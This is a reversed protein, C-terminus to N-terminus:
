ARRPRLRRMNNAVVETDDSVSSKQISQLSRKSKAFNTGGCSVKINKSNRMRENVGSKKKVNYDGSDDLVEDLSSSSSISRCSILCLSKRDLLAEPKSLESLMKDHDKWNGPRFNPMDKEESTTNDIAEWREDELRVLEIDGNDHVIKFNSNQSDYSDVTGSSYCLDIPSWLRIRKGVLAEGSGGREVCDASSQIPETITRGKIPIDAEKALIEKHPNSLKISVSACSSLQERELNFNCNENTLNAPGSVSKECLLETSASTASLMKKHKVKSDVKMTELKQNEKDSDCVGVKQRLQKSQKSDARRELPLDNLTKKKTELCTYNKQSIGCHKADCSAPQAIFSENAKLIRKVFGENIFSESTHSEERNRADQCVKYHSSPLLVLRPADLSLELQESLAKVLFLGIKSLIHLKPTMDPNIADEAKQIARFIGLLFSVTNSFYHGNIKLIDLNLLERLIVILPSCFEAYVDEEKCNELPFKPDYALVHILFVMIYAPHNTIADKKQELTNHHTLFKRSSEELFESLYRTSDTRIDGLCDTSTLAFACAYKNLLAHEKLLKHIKCIFSRRVACSSDRATFIISHFHKPSIHSDWRTALRLVSKAAAIRLYAKDYESIIIANYIGQELIIDFLIDFLGNIQHQLHTVQRPLFSRVLAKLGYIKIKCSFSPVSDEGSFTQGSPSPDAAFMELSCLIDEVIFRMVKQHYLKYASPSYQSIHSISQLLAPINGSDDLANVLKKLLVSFTNDDSSHGLSAIASVALKSEARTGELCKRELLPYIDSLQISIHCAAKVLIQLVKENTLASNESFLKLWYAESGRLLSPFMTLIILLLDITSQMHKNGCQTCSILDEMISYVIETNFIMNSCKLSLVKFFNYNTHKSGIRKLFSDRISRSTALSTNEDIMEGLAKFINNDKMENLSQFCDEAKSSDTFSASMLKFSALIRKQVEKSCNEKAKMRLALYSEMEMQLRKKQSLISNLAKIHPLKCLSFFATWHNVREKSSLSSPFLEEALVLEMNQPRFSECDKDFCLALIKCPIQEYHENIIAIGKSCKSCYDRYLELLKQLTTKRVSVKKDRLREVARSILESPFCTLNSKALDCVAIVAQIRVKDDFDLLRAELATLVDHVENGSPLALYCAKACEIAAIRVETAKDSFRKLFEVFVSRYDQGFHLKSLAVLKGILQVAELRVDVQDTLLEHTLNPIVAFLIQPSFQFIELIIQHYLKKLENPSAGRNLICSTLFVRLSPELKAACNQIIVVALEFPPGKKEKVINWLIVELLPQSVKEEIIHTMISQMAQFVSQQHVQEAVSFFVRFMDLVLDECGIDLMIVSCRLASVTELIKMRRSIYPSEVDALDVFTSIIIKFIEKFVEDSYPPSPALIRIIDTFCVAVLLKVDKDKHHLLNSQVLSKNLPRLTNELSSSQTLESLAGEAQKLLKVLADKNLRPQSLLKGVREVVREPPDPM